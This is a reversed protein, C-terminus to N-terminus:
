GGSCEGCAWAVMVLGQANVGCKIYWRVLGCFVVSVFAFFTVFLIICCFLKGKSPINIDVNVHIGVCAILVLLLVIFTAFMGFCISYIVSFLVLLIDYIVTILAITKIKLVHADCEVLFRFSFLVHVLVFVVLSFVQWFIM